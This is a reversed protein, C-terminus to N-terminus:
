RRGRPCLCARWNRSLSLFLFYSVDSFFKCQYKSRLGAFMVIHLVNTLCKTLTTVNCNVEIRFHPLFTQIDIYSCHEYFGRPNVYKDTFNYVNNVNGSCYPIPLCVKKVIGGTKPDYVSMALSGDAPDYSISQKPSSQRCTANCVEEPDIFQNCGCRFFFGM